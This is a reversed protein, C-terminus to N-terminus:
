RSQFRLRHEILICADEVVLLGAARAKAAAAPNTIGQQM